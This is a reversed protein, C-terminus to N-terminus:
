LADDPEGWYAGVVEIYDPDGEREPEYEPATVLMRHDCDVRVVEEDADAGQVLGAPLLVTRAEDTVVVLYNHESDYAAAQVTGAIGDATEVAYGVLDEDALAQDRHSWIDDAM